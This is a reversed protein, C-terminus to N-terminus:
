SWSRKSFALTPVDSSTPRCKGKTHSCYKMAYTNKVYPRTLCMHRRKHSLRSVFQSGLGWSKALERCSEHNRECFRRFAGYEKPHTASNAFMKNSIMPQQFSGQPLPAPHCLLLLIFCFNFLVEQISNSCAARLSAM